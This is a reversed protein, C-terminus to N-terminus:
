DCCPTLQSHRLPWPLLAAVKDVAALADEETPYCEKLANWLILIEEEQNAQKMGGSQFSVRSALLPPLQALAAAARQQEADRSSMTLSGVRAM